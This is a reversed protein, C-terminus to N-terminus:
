FQNTWRFVLFLFCMFSICIMANSFLGMNRVMELYIRTEPAILVRTWPVVTPEVGSMQQLSIVQRVRLLNLDLSKNSPHYPGKFVTGSDVFVVKKHKSFKQAHPLAQIWFEYWYFLDILMLWAILTLAM